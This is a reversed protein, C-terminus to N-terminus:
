MLLFEDLRKDLTCATLTNPEAESIGLFAALEDVLESVV